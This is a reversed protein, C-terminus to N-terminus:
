SDGEPGHPTTLLASETKFDGPFWGPLMKQDGPEPDDETKIEGPQWTFRARNSTPM